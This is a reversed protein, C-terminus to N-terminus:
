DSIERNIRSVSEKSLFDTFGKFPDASPMAAHLVGCSSRRGNGVLQVRVGQLYSRGKSIGLCFVGPTLLECLSYRWWIM